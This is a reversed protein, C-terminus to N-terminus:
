PSQRAGRQSPAPASVGPLGRSWASRLDLQRKTPAELPLLRVVPRDFGAMVVRRTLTRDGRRVTFAATDGIAFRSLFARFEPWTAVRNGDISLIADGTHLDARGWISNPNTVRLRLNPEGDPLWASARLDKARTGDDNMSPMWSIETKLGLLKLYRDFDVPNGSFVYRDFIDAASCRCVDEVAKQVDRSTFRKHRTREYLLRMVHDMSRTGNTADRIKLDLLAGIIEGQLHSSAFYDGLAAPSANYEM